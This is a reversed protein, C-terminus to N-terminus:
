PVVELRSQVWTTSSSPENGKLLLRLERALDPISVPQETFAGHLTLSGPTVTFSAKVPGSSSSVAGSEPWLLTTSEGEVAFVAVYPRDARFVKLQVVEGVSARTVRQGDRVLEIAASGKIRNTEDSRMLAPVFVIALVGAAIASAVPVWWSRRKAAARGHRSVLTNRVASAHPSALVRENNTELERVKASCESCARLHEAAADELPLKAAAEDMVMRSLHSM